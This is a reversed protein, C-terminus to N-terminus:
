LSNNLFKRINSLLEAVDESHVQIADICPLPDGEISPVNSNNETTFVSSFYDAFINTKILPDIHTEGQFDLPGVGGISDQRESKIYTWLKKTVVNKNPDVLNSVYKNYAIRCERQCERKLNYYRTWHQSENTNRAQNYARQKRRSLCKIHINIWPQKSNLSCLKIPILDLCTNCISAFNTWLIKVPTSTSHSSIFKECLLSIRNRIDQFDAQVM